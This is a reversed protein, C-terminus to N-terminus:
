LSASLFGNDYPWGASALVQYDDPSVLGVLDLTTFDTTAVEDAAPKAPWMALLLLAAVSAPALWHLLPALWGPKRADTEDIARM